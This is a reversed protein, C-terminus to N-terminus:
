FRSYFMELAITSFTDRMFITICEYSLLLDWKMSRSGHSKSASSHTSHFCFLKLVFRCNLRECILTEVHISWRFTKWIWLNVCDLHWNIRLLQLIIDEELFKIHIINQAFKTLFRFANWEIDHKLCTSNTTHLREPGSSSMLDTLFDLEDEEQVIVINLKRGELTDHM